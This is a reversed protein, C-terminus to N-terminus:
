SGGGTLSADVQNSRTPQVLAAGIWMYSMGPGRLDTKTSASHGGSSTPPWLRRRLHSCSTSRTAETVPSCARTARASWVLLGGGERPDCRSLGCSTPHHAIANTGHTSHLLSIEVSANAHGPQPARVCDAFVDTIAFRDRPEPAYPIAPGPPPTQRRVGISADAEPSLVPARKAVHMRSTAVRTPWRISNRFRLARCRRPRQCELLM